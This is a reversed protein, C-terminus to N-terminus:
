PTVPPAQAPVAATIVGTKADELSVHYTDLTAGTARALEVRAKEFTTQAGSLISEALALDHQATLTQLNSGAGLKQEQRSIDFTKQALDRAETAANVRASNQELAYQANRVEIRIQKKQQQILLESQRYELESRYQDSKSVRNRIPVLVSVGVLYDPSNNNFANVVSGTFSTPVTSSATSSPAREGALGTGGYYAELNVSPLLANRAARRSLDQNALNISSEALEPRDHLARDTLEALTDANEGADVNVRETPVVPIEELM